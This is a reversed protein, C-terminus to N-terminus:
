WFLNHMIINHLCKFTQSKSNSGGEEEGERLLLLMLLFNHVQKFVHEMAATVTSYFKSLQIGKNHNTSLGVHLVLRMTNIIERRSYSKKRRTGGLNKSLTLAALSETFSPNSRFRYQPADPLGAGLM